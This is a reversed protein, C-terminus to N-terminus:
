TLSSPPATPATQQRVKPEAAATLATGALRHQTLVISTHDM